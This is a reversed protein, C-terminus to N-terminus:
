ANKNTLYGEGHLKLIVRQVEPDWREVVPKIVVGERVHDAKPMTSPGEALEYATELLFPGRYLEPVTPLGFISGVIAQFVDYDLFERNGLHRADFFVVDIQNGLGYRLQQVKGYVEGYLAIHPFERLVEELDYRKAITWWITPREPDYKHYQTRGGAYFKGDHWFWRGNAGHIKETMVVEEDPQFIHSYRRLGDIDYVSLTGPDSEVMGNTDSEDPPEWKTIGLLKAWDVQQYAEISDPGVLGEGYWDILKGLPQCLGMSFIGRLKKARVREIQREPKDLPFLFESWEARPVNSDVPVYIAWDGVNWDETRLIVPYGGHIKTISLSDANPHKEMEQIQVLEVKWESM